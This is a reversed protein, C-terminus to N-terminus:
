SLKWVYSMSTLAFSRLRFTSCTDLWTPRIAASSTPRWTTLPASRVSDAHLQSGFSAIRSTRLQHTSEVARRRSWRRRHRPARRPRNTAHIRRADLIEHREGTFKSLKEIVVTRAPMNIGLALTETAFVVKVLAQSFCEEVAEKFPPVMGAHHAAVGNELAALWSGYELVDLDTTPFTDVKTEAIKRIKEREETTTLRLSSNLCQKVADDCAARSFIFYIAPLM